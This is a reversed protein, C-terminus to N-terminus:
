RLLRIVAYGMLQEAAGAPHRAEFRLAQWHTWGTAMELADLLVGAGTGRARLEPALTEALQRRLLVRHDGLHRDVGAPDGSRASAARLVPGVAEFLERRQHCLLGVRSELPGWPLVPVVLSGHRSAQLDVAALYLRNVDAFHHFVSRRAVGAREAIVRASPQPDGSEVLDILAELILTHTRSSRLRRRDAPPRDSADGSEDTPAVRGGSGAGTAGM